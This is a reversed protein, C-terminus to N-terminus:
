IDSVCCVFLSSREHVLNLPAPPYAPWYGTTLVHVSLESTVQVLFSICTAHLECHGSDFSVKDSLDKRVSSNSYATMIDKSLEM